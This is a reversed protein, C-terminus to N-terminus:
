LNPTENYKIYIYVYILTIYIYYSNNFLIIEIDINILVINFLIYTFTRLFYWNFSIYISVNNIM